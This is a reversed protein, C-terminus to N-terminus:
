RQIINFSKVTAHEAKLEVLIDKLLHKIERLLQIESLEEIVEVRELNEIDKVNKELSDKKKKHM